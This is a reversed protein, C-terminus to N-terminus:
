DACPKVESTSSIQCSGSIACRSSIKEPSTSDSSGPPYAGLQRGITWREGTRTKSSPLSFRNRSIRLGFTNHDDRKAGHPVKVSNVHKGNVVQTRIFNTEEFQYLIYNKDDRYGVVWEVRKGKLLQVNFQIVARSLESPLLVFEGGTRKIEGGEHTWGFKLWDELTFMPRPTEPTPTPPGTKPNTAEIRRLTLPATVTGGALVRVIAQGDQYRPASASVTYQGEPVLLNLDHTDLDQADGQRRVRVRAEAPTVEIRLTGMLTQLAGDLEVAKGAAFVQDTQSNKYRPHTLSVTHRGPEVYAASFEGTAPVIGISKGDVLVDSGPVGRHINLTSRAPTLKFDLSKVDAKGIQATQEPPTLFGDKQLRVVYTKPPLNLRAQGRMTTRSTREGNLYIEAGDENATVNLVGINQQSLLAAIM